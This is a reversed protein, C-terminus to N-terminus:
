LFISVLPFFRSGLSSALPGGWTGAAGRLASVGLSSLAARSIVSLDESSLSARALTLSFVLLDLIENCTFMCLVQSFLLIFMGVHPLSSLPQVKYLRKEKLGREGGGQRRWRGGGAGSRVSVHVRWWGHRGARCRKVGSWTAAVVIIVGHRRVRSWVAMYVFHGSNVLSLLAVKHKFLILIPLPLFLFQSLEKFSLPLLLVHYYFTDARPVPHYDRFPSHDFHLLSVLKLPFDSWSKTVEM